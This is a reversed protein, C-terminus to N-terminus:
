SGILDLYWLQLLLTIAILQLILLSNIVMARVSSKKFIQLWSRSDVSTIEKLRKIHKKQKHSYSQSNHKRDKCKVCSILFLSTHCPICYDSLKEPGFMSQWHWPKLTWWDCSIITSLLSFPSLAWRQGSSATKWAGWSSGMVTSGPCVSRGSPSHSSPSATAGPSGEVPGWGPPMSAGSPPQPQTTSNAVM